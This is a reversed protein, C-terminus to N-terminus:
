PLQNIFGIVDGSYFIKLTGGRLVTSSSPSVTIRVNDENSVKGVNANDQYTVTTTVNSVPAGAGAGGSFQTVGASTQLLYTLDTPALNPANTISAFSITLNGNNWTGATLVLNPKQGQPPGVLGTVMVYLVAALVVTIAVMLITGIVPSVAKKNPRLFVANM